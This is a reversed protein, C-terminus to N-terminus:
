GKYPFRIKREALREDLSRWLSEDLSASAAVSATGENRIQEKRMDEPEQKPKPKRPAWDMERNFLIQAAVVVSLGFVAYVFLDSVM